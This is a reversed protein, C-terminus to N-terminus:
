KTLYDKGADNVREVHEIWGQFLTQLEADSIDDFTEAVLQFLDIEDSIEWGILASDMKWLLHFDSPSIDPYYPPHPLRKLPNYGLFTQTIRSNHTPASSIPVVM